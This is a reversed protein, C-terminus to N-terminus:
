WSFSPCLWDCAIYVEYETCVMEGVMEGKQIGKYMGYMGYMRYVSRKRYDIGDLELELGM